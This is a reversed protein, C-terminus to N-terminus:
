GSKVRSMGRMQGLRQHLEKETNNAYHRADDIHGDALTRGVYDLYHLLMNGRDPLTMIEDPPAWIGSKGTRILLSKLEPVLDEICSPWPDSTSLRGAIAATLQMLQLGIQRWERYLKERSPKLSDIWLGLTVGAVFTVSPWFLWHHTLSAVLSVAWSWAKTPDDIYGNREAWREVAKSILGSLGLAVVLWAFFKKM